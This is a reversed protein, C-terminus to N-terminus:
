PLLKRLIPFLLTCHLIASTSSGICLRVSAPLCAPLCILCVPLVSTCMTLDHVIVTLTNYGSALSTENVEHEHEHTAIQGGEASVLQYGV